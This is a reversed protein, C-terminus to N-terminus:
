SGPRNAGSGPAPSSASVPTIDTVYLAPITLEEVQGDVVTHASKGDYGPNLRRLRSVVRLVQTEAPLAELRKAWAEHSLSADPGTEAAAPLPYKRRLREIIGLSERGASTDAYSQSFGVFREILAEPSLHREQELANLEELRKRATNERITKLEGSSALDPDRSPEPETQATTKPPPLRREVPPRSVPTPGPASTKGTSSLGIVLATVLIALLVCGGLLWVTQRQVTKQAPSSPAPPRLADIRRRPQRPTAILTLTADIAKTHPTHGEVVQELDKVLDACDRYRDEPKKAMMRQIVHVVGDPIEERIDRPDTLQVSLHKALVEIASSGLFPPDGTVFHYYTAGLSYIDARGDLDKVGRAQEPSM